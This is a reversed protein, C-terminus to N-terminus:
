YFKFLFFTTTYVSHRNTDDTVVRCPRPLRKDNFFIVSHRWLAEFMVNYVQGKKVSQTM